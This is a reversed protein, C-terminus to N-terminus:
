ETHRTHYKSLSHFNHLYPNWLFFFIIVNLFLYPFLSEPLKVDSLFHSLQAYFLLSSFSVQPCARALFTKPLLPNSLSVTILLSEKCTGSEVSEVSLLGPFLQTLKEYSLFSTLRESSSASGWTLQQSLNLESTLSLPDSVTRWHLKSASVLAGPEIQFSKLCAATLFHMVVTCSSATRVRRCLCLFRDPM